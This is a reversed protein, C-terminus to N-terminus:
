RMGKKRLMLEPKGMTMELGVNIGLSQIWDWIEKKVQIIDDGDSVELSEVELFLGLDKVEELVIEYKDTVFVSKKNEIKVLEEFGLELFISLIKEFDGIETECEDSYLWIGNTDFYDLKYTMFSKEGSKRIRLCKTLQGSQDPKLDDRKPDFLYIDTVIKEGVYKCFKLKSVVEEKSGFVEVLIEVEKKM